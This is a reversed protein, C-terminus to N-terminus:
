GHGECVLRSGDSQGNDSGEGNGVSYGLSEGNDQQLRSNLRLRLRWRATGNVTIYSYPNQVPLPLTPDNSQETPVVCRGEGSM